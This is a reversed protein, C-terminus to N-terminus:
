HGHKTKADWNGDMNEKQWSTHNEGTTDLDMGNNLNRVTCMLNIKMDMNMNM